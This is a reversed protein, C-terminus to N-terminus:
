PKFAYVRDDGATVIRGHVAIPSNFHHMHTLTVGADGGSMVLEGTLLDFAHLQGTDESDAAEGGAIWVLADDQGDSTTIMPSGSGLASTCWAVSMKQPATPDLKLAALDGAGGDPCGLTGTNGDPRLVVYTTGGITAFAAGNNIQGVQVHLAGVNATHGAAALGGLDNRDMLYVWGDKGEAMILASPTLAPADIVLPQSGSLDLDGTDLSVFDNPAFFDTPQGSFTPGPDFRFVGETDAWTAGADEPLTDNGTAVFISQGDSAPGGPGWIGGGQSRTAWAKAGTGTLPVGVVWGHYTGCDGNHGGYAVYAIGNVVLVAGRQNQMKAWFALGTSDTLTSVDVSWRISGDLISLAYITHTAIDGNTAASAADLIMLGTGLDIAPTGTVGIPSAGCGAGSQTAPTALNVMPVPWASKGTTEDLAYVNNSMTAVYFAGKGNPGNEVYLPSSYVIGAITGDFGPDLAFGPASAKTILPDVYFGDRNIHSHYGLVSAGVSPGGDGADGAEPGGAEPSTVDGAESGDRGADNGSGGEPSTADEAGGDGSRDANTGCAASAAIAVATALARRIL